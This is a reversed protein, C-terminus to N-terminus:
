AEMGLRQNLCHLVKGERRCIRIGTHIYVQLLSQTGFDIRDIACHHPMGSAMVHRYGIVQHHEPQDRRVFVSMSGFSTFGLFCGAVRWAEVGSWLYLWAAVDGVCM